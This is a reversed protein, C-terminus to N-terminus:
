ILVALFLFFALVFLGIFGRSVKADIERHTRCDSFDFPNLSM